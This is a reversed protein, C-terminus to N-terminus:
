LLEALGLRDEFNFSKLSHGLCGGSCQGRNLYKCRFCKNTAGVKRFAEFKNIYFQYIEQLDKFDTLKRNWIMSTVFCRWLKLDPGVDIVPGCVTILPSNYYFLQGCQKKTFSCLTFGCDFGLSIDLDDCKRAFKVIKPALKNYDKMPLYKNDQGWLPNAIGVRIIRRLNYKKILGIIFDMNFNVRYITFGLTIKRNLTKMARNIKSWEKQTYSEPQNINLLMIWRNKDISELFTIIDKKIIGNSYIGIHFEEDLIMMVAEKFKPHLTPEGGIIGVQTEKSKKLFNIIIKLNKFNIYSDRSNKASNLKGKAFCYPCNRNCFNTFVINM